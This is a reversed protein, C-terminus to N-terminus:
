MSTATVGGLLEAGPKGNAERTTSVCRAVSTEDGLLPVVTSYFYQEVQYSMLKRLHGEDVSDLRTQPPAIFKLILSLPEAKKEGDGVPQAMLEYIYGYGAWLTQLKKLSVVELSHWSLMIEAVREPEIPAKPAVNRRMVAWIFILLALFKIITSNKM